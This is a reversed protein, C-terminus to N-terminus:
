LENKFVIVLELENLTCLLCVHTIYSADVENDIMAFKIM